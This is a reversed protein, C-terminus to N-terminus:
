TLAEPCCLNQALSLHAEMIHLNQKPCTESYMGTFHCENTVTSM